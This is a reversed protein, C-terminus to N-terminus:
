LSRSSNSKSGEPLLPLSDPPSPSSPVHPIIIATGNAQFEVVDARVSVSPISFLIWYSSTREMILNGLTQPKGTEVSAKGYLRNMATQFRAPFLTIVGLLAFGKAQSVVNTKVTVFNGETLKVDTQNHIELAGANPNLSNLASSVPGSAMSACGTALAALGLLAIWEEM